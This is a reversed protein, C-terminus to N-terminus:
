GVCGLHPLAYVDRVHGNEIAAHSPFHAKPAVLLVSRQLQSLPHSRGRIPAIMATVAYIHVSETIIFSKSFLDKMM